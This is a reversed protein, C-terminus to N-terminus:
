DVREFRRAPAGCVPCKDPAQSGRHTHGCVQCIYYDGEPLAEGAEVAQIAEQYYVEHEKEVEWAWKFSTLAKKEGEAEADQMFDPYMTDIEYKEGGRAAQLNEATSKIEGLIRLHNHAHVTEAAAVAQFLRAIQPLGEDEAKKAYALYRRNAQSEGAFAAKLDKATKSM